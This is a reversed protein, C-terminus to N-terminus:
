WHWLLYATRLKKLYDKQRQLNSHIQLTKFFASEKEKNGTLFKKRNQYMENKLDKINAKYNAIISPMCYLCIDKYVIPSVEKCYCCISILTSRIDTHRLEDQEKWLFSLNTENPITVKVLYGVSMNQGVRMGIIIGLIDKYRGCQLSVKENMNFETKIEM